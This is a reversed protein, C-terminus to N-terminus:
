EAAKYKDSGCVQKLTAQKTKIYAHFDNCSKNINGKAILIAKLVGVGLQSKESSWIKNMLSFVREVPANSGPLCLIYEIIISFNV